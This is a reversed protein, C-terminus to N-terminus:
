VFYDMMLPVVFALAILWIIGFEKRFSSALSKVVLEHFEHGCIGSVNLSSTPYYVRPGGDNLVVNLNGSADTVVTKCSLVETVNQGPSFGTGDSKLTVQAAASNNPHSGLNSLVSM